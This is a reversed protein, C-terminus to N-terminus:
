LAPTYKTRASVAFTKKTCRCCRRLRAPLAIASGFWIIKPLFGFLFSRQHFESDRSVRTFNQRRALESIVEDDANQLGFSRVHSSDPYLPALMEVLRHSLNQDFLLKV